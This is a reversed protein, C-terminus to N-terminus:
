VEDAAVSDGDSDTDSSVSSESATDFDKSSVSSSSTTIDSTKKFDAKMEARKEKIWAPAHEIADQPRVSHLLLFQQISALPFENEPIVTAFTESLKNLSIVHDVGDDLHDAPTVDSLLEDPAFMNMFMAKIQEECAYDFEIRLEFRGDRKLASDSTQIETLRNARAFIIACFYDHISHRRVM